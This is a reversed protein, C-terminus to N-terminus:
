RKLKYYVRLIALGISSSIKLLIKEFINAKNYNTQFYYQSKKLIKYKNIKSINSDITVSHNHIVEVDLMVKEKKGIQKLKNALYNEEYYLFMNEDFYDVQKLKM